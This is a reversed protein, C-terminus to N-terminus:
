LKLLIVCAFILQLLAKEFLDSQQQLVGLLGRRCLLIWQVVGVGTISSLLHVAVYPLTSM